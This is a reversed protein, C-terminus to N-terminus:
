TEWRSHNHYDLVTMLVDMRGVRGGEVKVRSVSM